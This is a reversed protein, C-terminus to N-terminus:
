GLEEEARKSLASSFSATGSLLKRMCIGNWRWTKLLCEFSPISFLSIQAPNHTTSCPSATFINCDSMRRPKVADVQRQRRACVSVSALLDIEADELLKLSLSLSARVDLDSDGRISLKKLREREASLSEAYDSLRRMKQLQLTAGIIRLALPLGGVLSIIREVAELEAAIRDRGLLKELLEQSDPEPLPPLDIQGSEPVGLFIPLGRDRTTIIVACKDGGPRLAKVAADDANDFILLARRHRFAEQMITAANRSDEPDIEEGVLRAFERAITDIEKGDVRLGFVGDPFEDKHQEAFHCALASKGVGGTGALGVISCLKPAERKILLDTLLTMQEDRGTFVHPEDSQPLVFPATIVPRLRVKDNIADILRQLQKKWHAPDTFDLIPILSIRKPPDCHKLKLALMQRNRFAPSNQQALLAELETWESKLWAPTLVLLTKRSQEVAREISIQIPTAPDFHEQYYCCKIGATELNQILENVVWDQDGSSHSVFVDFPLTSIASPM